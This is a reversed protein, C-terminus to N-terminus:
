TAKTFLTDFLYKFNAHKLLVAVRTQSWNQPQSYFTLPGLFTSATPKGLGRLTVHKELLVETYHPFSSGLILIWLLHNHTQSGQTLSSQRRTFGKQKLLGLGQQSCATTSRCQYSMFNEVFVFVFFVCFVKDGIIFYVDSCSCVTNISTHTKNKEFDSPLSAKRYCGLNTLLGCLRSGTRFTHHCHDCTMHCMVWAVQQNVMQGTVIAFHCFM